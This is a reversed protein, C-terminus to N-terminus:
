LSETVIEFSLDIPARSIVPTDLDVSTKEDGGSAFELFVTVLEPHFQGNGDWECSSCVTWAWLSVLPSSPSNTTVSIGKPCFWSGCQLGSIADDCALLGAM